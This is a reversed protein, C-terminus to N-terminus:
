KITQKNRINVQVNGKLRCPTIRGQPGFGDGSCGPFSSYRIGMSGLTASGSKTSSSSRTLKGFCLSSLISRPTKMKFLPLNLAAVGGGAGTGAACDAVTGGGSIAGNGAVAGSITLLSVVSCISDRRWVTRAFPPILAKGTGVVAAGSGAGVTGGIGGM